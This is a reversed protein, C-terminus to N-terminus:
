LNNGISNVKESCSGKFEENYVKKHYMMMIKRPVIASIFQKILYIYQLIPMNVMRYGDFSVKILHMYSKFTRRKYANQDDRVMYLADDINYGKYGNAFFRFWLDVDECRNTYKNVRYGGLNKYVYSRAMITAHCFPTSKSLDITTPENFPVSSYGNIGNENFSIMKTGVLDYKENEELFKVQIDFREKVSIDDGDQRAIYEGTVYELCHNLSFALGLNEKNKLLTIKHPYMDKYKKAINYTSDISADDCMILELNNYTQNLISEISEELTDECNYIGMIVSVKKDINKHKM